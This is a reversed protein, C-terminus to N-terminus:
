VVLAQDGLKFLKPLNDLHGLKFLKFTDIDGQTTQKGEQWHDKGGGKAGSVFLM